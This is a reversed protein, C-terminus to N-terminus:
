GASDPVRSVGYPRGARGGLAAEARRARRRAAGDRVLELEEATLPLAPFARGVAAAFASGRRALSPAVAVYAAVYPAVLERQSLSWLGAALARFRRVSVDPDETMAAWAASKAAATPRAALATVAGLDGAATGDRLREAEIQAHRSAVSNPWGAYSPGASSRTWRWGRTPRMRMWGAGCCRPTTRPGLWGARWRSRANSTRSARSARVGRRGGRARRTRGLAAARPAGPRQPDPRPRRGGPDAVVRAATTAGVTGPAFRGPARQRCTTSCWRGCCRGCSRTRCTPWRAAVRRRLVVPGARDPRLDRRVLQAGRGARGM